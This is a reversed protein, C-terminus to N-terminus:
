FRLWCGNLSMVRFYRHANLFLTFELNLVFNEVYYKSLQSICPIAFLLHFPLNVRHIKDPWLIKSESQNDTPGIKLYNGQFQEVILSKKLRPAIFM